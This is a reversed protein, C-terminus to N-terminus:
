GFVTIGGAFKGSSKPFVVGSGNGECENDIIKAYFIHSLLVQVVKDRSKPIGIFYGDVHCTGIHESHGEIPIVCGFVHVDAHGVVDGFHELIKEDWVVVVGLGVVDISVVAIRYCFVIQVHVLVM